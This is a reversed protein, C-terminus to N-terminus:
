DHMVLSSLQSIPGMLSYCFLFVYAGICCVGLPTGLNMLMRARHLADSEYIHMLQELMAPLTGAQEGLVVMSKFKEPFLSTKEKNLAETFSLGNSIRNGIRKLAVAMAPNIDSTAADGVAKDLPLGAWTLTALQQATQALDRSHYVHNIFPIRDVLKWLISSIRGQNQSLFTLKKELYLLLFLFVIISPFFWPESSLNIFWITALSLNKGFSGFIEAIQPLVFISLPIGVLFICIFIAKIYFLHGMLDTHFRGSQVLSEELHDLVEDLRDTEEGVRIADVYTVPFFNPRRALAEHLSSGNKIDDALVTLLDRVKRNPVDIKMTSIGKDLPIRLQVLDNLQFTIDLLMRRWANKRLFHPGKWHMNRKDAIGKYSM